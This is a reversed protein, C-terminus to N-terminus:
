TTTTVINSLMVSYEQLTRNLKIEVYKMIEHKWIKRINWINPLFLRLLLFELDTSSVLHPRVNNSKQGHNSGPENQSITHTLTMNATKCCYLAVILEMLGSPGFNTNQLLATKNFVEEKMLSMQLRARCWLCKCYITVDQLPDLLLSIHFSRNHCFCM